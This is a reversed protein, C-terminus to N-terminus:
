SLLKHFDEWQRNKYTSHNHGCLTHVMVYPYQAVYFIHSLQVLSMVPKVSIITMVAPYGNKQEM